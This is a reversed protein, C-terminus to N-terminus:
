YGELLDRDIVRLEQARGLRRMDEADRATGPKETVIEESRTESVHVARNAITAEHFREM